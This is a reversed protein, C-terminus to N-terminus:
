KKMSMFAVVGVVALAALILSKNGTAQATADSYSNQAASSLQGAMALNADTTKRQSSFLNDAVALLSDFNLSNQKLSVMGLQSGAAVAGADTTTSSWYSNDTWNSETRNATTTTTTNGTNGTNSSNGSNTATNFADALNTSANTRNDNQNRTNFADALNTSDNRTTNFADSLQTRNDTSTNFANRLRASSDTNGSNTLATSVANSEYGIVSRADVINSTTNQTSSSDSESDGGMRALARGGLAHRHEFSLYKM